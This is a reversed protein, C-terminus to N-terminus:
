YSFSARPEAKMYKEPEELQCYSDHLKVIYIDHYYLIIVMFVCSAFMPIPGFFWLLMTIAFYLARLGLNWCYGGRTIMFEIKRELNKNGPTSMTLLYNAHVLLKVAHVFGSFALLLCSLLGVNKIFVTFPRTDGYVRNSRFLNSSSGLFTGILSSMTLSFTAFFTGSTTHTTIVSAARDLTGKDGNQVITRVWDVRDFAELGITTSSPCTYHRYLLYLHYTFMILLGNPVLFLDLYDKQFHFEM